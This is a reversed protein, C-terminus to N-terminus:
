RGHHALDFAGSFVKLVRQDDVQPVGRPKNPLLPKIIHWERGTLEYRQRSM